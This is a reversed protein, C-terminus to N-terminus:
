VGRAALAAEITLDPSLGCAHRQHPTLADLVAQPALGVLEVRTRQVQPGLAADLRQLVTWPGTRLPRILNCSVQVQAGVPLGLARVDPSRLARALSQAETLTAGELWVNWAVLVPRAGVAVRGRAPNLQDVPIDPAGGARARQRVDPLSMTGAPVGDGYLYGPVALERAFWRATENRLEAAEHLTRAGLPVFPVVDVVGFRPHV